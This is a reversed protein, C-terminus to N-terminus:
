PGQPLQVGECECLQLLRFLCALMVVYDLAQVLSLTVALAAVGDNSFPATPM